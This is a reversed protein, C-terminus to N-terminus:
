LIGLFHILYSYDLIKNIASTVIQVQRVVKMHTTKPENEGYGWSRSHEQGM